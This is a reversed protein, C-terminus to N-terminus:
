QIFLQFFRQKKWLFINKCLWKKRTGWRFSVQMWIFWKCYFKCFFLTIIFEFIYITHVSRNYTQLNMKEGFIKCLPCYQLEEPLFKPILNQKKLLPLKASNRSKIKNTGTERRPIEKNKTKQLIKVSKGNLPYLDLSFWLKQSTM